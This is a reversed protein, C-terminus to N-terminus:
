SSFLRKVFSKLFASHIVIGIVSIMRATANPARTAAPSGTSSAIRATSADSPRKEATVCAYLPSKWDVEDTM